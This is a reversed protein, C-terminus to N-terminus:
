CHKESSHSCSDRPSRTLFAPESKAPRSHLVLNQMELLCGPPAMAAPTHGVSLIWPRPSPLSSGDASLISQYNLSGWRGILPCSSVFVAPAHLLLPTQTELVEWQLCGEEASSEGSVKGRGLNKELCTHDGSKLPLPLLQYRLANNEELRSALAKQRALFELLQLYQMSNVHPTQDLLDPAPM